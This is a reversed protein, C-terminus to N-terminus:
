EGFMDLLAQDISSNKDNLEGTSKPQSGMLGALDDFDDDWSNNAFMSALPMAALKAANSNRSEMMGAWAPIQASSGLGRGVEVVMSDIRPASNIGVIQEGEGSGSMSNIKDVVALVDLPTVFNDGNVDVYDPPGPLGAVPISSGRSNLLNVLILVDIPSIFGDANVDWQQSPNQYAPAPARGITITVTTQPSAAGFADIARYTFTDTSGFLATPGPTYTFTGNPNLTVTGRTPGSVISATMADGEPDRDNALVGDDLTTATLVGLPDTTVLTVGQPTAYSDPMAVPADNVPSVTLIFSDSVFRSTTDTAVVTITTQGSANPVLTL